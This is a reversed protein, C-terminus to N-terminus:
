ERTFTQSHQKDLLMVHDATIATREPAFTKGEVCCSVKVGQEAIRRRNRSLQEEVEADGVTPHLHIRHVVEMKGVTGGESNRGIKVDIEASQFLFKRM